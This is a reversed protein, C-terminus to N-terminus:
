KGEWQYISEVHGNVSEILHGCAEINTGIYLDQSKGSLEEQSNVRVWGTWKERLSLTSTPTDEPSHVETGDTQMAEHAEASKPLFCQVWGPLFPWSDTDVTWEGKTTVLAYRDGHCGSETISYYDCIAGAAQWIQNAPLRTSYTMERCQGM